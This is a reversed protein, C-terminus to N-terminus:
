RSHEARAREPFLMWAELGNRSIIARGLILRFSHFIASIHAKSTPFKARKDQGPALPRLSLLGEVTTVTEGGTVKRYRVANPFPALPEPPVNSRHYGFNNLQRQFSALKATRYYDPLRKELEAPSPIILTGGDFHIEDCETIMKVLQRMFSTAKRGNTM